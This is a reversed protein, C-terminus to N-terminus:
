VVESLHSRTAKDLGAVTKELAAIRKLANILAVRLEDVNRDTNGRAGTDELAEAADAPDGLYLTNFRSM